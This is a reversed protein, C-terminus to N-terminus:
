ASLCGRDFPMGLLNGILMVRRQLLERGLNAAQRACGFRLPQHDPADPLAIKACVEHLVPLAAAGEGADAILVQQPGGVDPRPSLALAVRGPQVHM